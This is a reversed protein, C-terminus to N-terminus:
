IKLGIALWIFDLSFYTLCAIKFNLVWFKVLRIKAIKLYNIESIKGFHKFLIQPTNGRCIDVLNLDLQNDAAIDM